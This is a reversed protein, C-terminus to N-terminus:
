SAFCPQLKKRKRANQEMLKMSTESLLEMFRWYESETLSLSNGQFEISVAGDETVATVGCNERKSLIRQLRNRRESRVKAGRWSPIRMFM